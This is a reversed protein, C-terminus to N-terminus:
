QLLQDSSIIQAQMLKMIMRARTLANNQTEGFFSKLRLQVAAMPDGNRDRFPMIITDVDNSRGYFIAGDTIAKSEADAGRQGTETKDKSAIIQPEGPPDLTYIQLGLIRPEQQMISDVLTQAAPVRPTYDIMTDCFYSVADSMTWFGIKGSSFTNDQLPPMVLRDDLWVTFQNGQAQVALTHWVNTTIDIQPGFAEGRVGDVVKYFHVNHGLASARVVYFNSGNQFRFVLGAMQEAVGSIIKFRTSLKFNRFTEGNYIFMPFHEDTPYQSTQALVARRTVSPAQPTLPALLPPVEDMVIKWDGPQGGGALASFFNTPTSGVNLDNFDMRIEAGGASLALALCGCLLCIRMAALRAFFRAAVLLQPSDFPFDAMDTELMATPAFGIWPM